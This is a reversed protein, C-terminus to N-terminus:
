DIADVIGQLQTRLGVTSGPTYVIEALQSPTQTNITAIVANFAVLMAQYEVIIDLTNDNYISQAHEKLGPIGALAAIAAKTDTLEVLYDFVDRGKINQAALRARIDASSQKVAAARTQMDQLALALSQQTGGGTPFAM